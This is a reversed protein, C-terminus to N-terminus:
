ALRWVAEHLQGSKSYGMKCLLFQTNPFGLLKVSGNRHLKERPTENNGFRGQSILQSALANTEAANIIASIATIVLKDLALVYKRDKWSDPQTKQGM